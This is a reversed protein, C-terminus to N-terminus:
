YQFLVDSVYLNFIYVASRVKLHKGDWGDDINTDNHNTDLKSHRKNRRISRSQISQQVDLDKNPQNVYNLLRRRYKRKRYNTNANIGITTHKKLFARQRQRESRDSEMSKLKIFNGNIDCICNGNEDINSNQFRNFTSKTM